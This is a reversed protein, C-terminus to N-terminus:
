PSSSLLPAPVRIVVCTGKGITSDIDFTGEISQIRERMNRLGLNETYTRETDFGIGTDKATLM